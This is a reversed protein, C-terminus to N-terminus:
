TGLKNKGFHHDEGIVIESPSFAKIIFTHLFDNASRQSIQKNFPVVFLFDIKLESLCSYKDDLDQLYKM